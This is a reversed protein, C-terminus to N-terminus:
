PLATQHFNPLPLGFGNHMLDLGTGSAGAVTTGHYGRQHSLIKVRGRRGMCHHYYWAMKIASDVAEAGSNAFFTRGMPIPAIEALDDALALAVDNTRHGYLAYFPLRSM